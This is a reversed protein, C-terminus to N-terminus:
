HLLMDKWSTTLPADAALNTVKYVKGDSGVYEGTRPNYQAFAVTPGTGPKGTTFASPAAPVAGSASPPVVVDAAPAAPAPEAPPALAPIPVGNLSNGAPPPPPLATPTYPAELPSVGSPVPVAEPPTGTPAAGPPLPTGEVPAYIDDSLTTRDDNPVGQAILSPDM